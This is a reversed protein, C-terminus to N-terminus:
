DLFEDWWELLAMLEQYWPGQGALSDDEHYACYLASVLRMLESWEQEPSEVVRAARPKLTTLILSVSQACQRALAAENLDAIELDQALDGLLSLAIRASQIASIALYGPESIMTVPAPETAMGTAEVGLLTGDLRDLGERLLALAAMQEPEALPGMTALLARMGQILGLKRSQESM